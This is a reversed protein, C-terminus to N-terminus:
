LVEITISLDSIEDLYDNNKLIIELNRNSISNMSQKPGIYIIKKITKEFFNVFNV